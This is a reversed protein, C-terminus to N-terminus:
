ARTGVWWRRRIHQANIELKVGAEGVPGAFPDQPAEAHRLTVALRLRKVFFKVVGPHRELGDGVVVPDIAALRNRMVGVNEQALFDGGVKGVAAFDMEEDPIEVLRLVLFDLLQPRVDILEGAIQALLFQGVANRMRQDVDVVKEGDLVELAEHKKEAAELGAVAIALRQGLLYAVAAQGGQRRFFDALQGLAVVEFWRVGVRM